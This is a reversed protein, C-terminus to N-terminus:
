HDSWQGNTQHGVVIKPGQVIMDEKSTPLFQFKTQLIQSDQGLFVYQMITLM